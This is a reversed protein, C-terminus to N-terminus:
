WQTEELEVLRANHTAETKAYGYLIERLTNIFMGTSNPTNLIRRARPNHAVWLVGEQELDDADVNFKNAVLLATRTVISMIDSTLLTWDFEESAATEVSKRSSM